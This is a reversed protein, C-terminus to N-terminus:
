PFTPARPIAGNMHTRSQVHFDVSQHRRVQSSLIAAKLDFCGIACTRYFRIKNAPMVNSYECSMGLQLSFLSHQIIMDHWNPLIINRHHVNMSEQM